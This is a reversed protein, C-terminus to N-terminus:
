HPGYGNYYTTPGYTVSGGPAPQYAPQAPPAYVPAPQVYAPAPQVYVPAPQAYVPASMMMGSAVGLGLMLGLGGDAWDDDGRWGEGWGGRWGDGWGRHWGEGGRWGGRWGEGGGRWGEGGRWGDAYALNALLTMLVVAVLSKKM